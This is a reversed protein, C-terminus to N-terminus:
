DNPDELADVFHLKAIDKLTENCELGNIECIIDEIDDSDIKVQTVVDKICDKTYKTVFMVHEALESATSVRNLKIKMNLILDRNIPNKLVFFSKEM